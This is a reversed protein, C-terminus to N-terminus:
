EGARMGKSSSGEAGRRRQQRLHRGRSDTDKRSRAKRHSRRFRHEMGDHIGDGNRDVFRKNNQKRERAQKREASSTKKEPKDAAGTRKKTENQAPNPKKESDAKSASKAERRKTEKNSAESTSSQAASPTGQAFAVLPCVCFIISMLIMLNFRKSSM